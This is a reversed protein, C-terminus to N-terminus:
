EPLERRLWGPYSLSDHEALTLGAPARSFVFEAVAEFNRRLHEESGDAELGVSWWWQNEVVFDVIELDCGEGDGVTGGAPTVLGGPGIHYGRSRRLKALTHWIGPARTVDAPGPNERDLNFSWKAWQGVRGVVGERFTRLGLDRETKVEVRAGARVKISLASSDPVRCYVDTREEAFTEGPLGDFWALVVEPLLGRCIWRTEVTPQM